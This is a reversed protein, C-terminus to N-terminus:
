TRFPPLIDYRATYLVLLLAIVLRDLKVTGLQLWQGVADVERQLIPADSDRIIYNDVLPDGM